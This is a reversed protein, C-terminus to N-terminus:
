VSKRVNFARNGQTSNGNETKRGLYDTPYGAPLININGYLYKDVKTAISSLESDKILEPYSFVVLEGFNSALWPEFANREQTEVFPSSLAGSKCDNYFDAYDRMSWHVCDMIKFKDKGFFIEHSQEAWKDTLEDGYISCDNDECFDLWDSIFYAAVYDLDSIVMGPHELYGGGLILMKENCSFQGDLTDEPEFTVLPRYIPRGAFFGVHEHDFLDIYSM